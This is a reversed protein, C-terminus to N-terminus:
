WSKVRSSRRGASQSPDGGQSLDTRHGFSKTVINQFTTLDPFLTVIQGFISVPNFNFQLLKADRQM